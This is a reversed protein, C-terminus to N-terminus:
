AMIDAFTAPWNCGYGVNTNEIFDLNEYVSNDFIDNFYPPEAIIPDGFGDPTVITFPDIYISDEMENFPNLDVGDLLSDIILDKESIDKIAKIIFDNGM